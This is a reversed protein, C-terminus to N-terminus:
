RAAGEGALAGPSALGALKWIAHADLYQLSRPCCAARGEERAEALWRLDDIRDIDFGSELIVSRLGARDAQQLTDRLVQATSMPHAFLDPAAARLGVLAYGGDRDPCIVLDHDVLAELADGIRAAELAPSDSGRLLVRQAGRAKAEVLARTMRESLDHGRQPVVRFGVPCRGRMEEVGHSPTVALLAELDHRRAAEATVELVDDLMAAYFAAAQQPSLPPCLRTKVRGPEPLRAFVIL